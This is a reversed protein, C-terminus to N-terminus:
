IHSSTLSLVYLLCGVLINPGSAIKVSNSWSSIEGADDCAATQQAQQQQQRQQGPQQRSQPGGREWIVAIGSERHPFCCPGLCLLIEAAAGHAPATGDRPWGRSQWFWRHSKWWCRRGCWRGRWRRCWWGCLWRCTWCRRPWHVWEIASHICFVSPCSVLFLPAASDMVASAWGSRRRWLRDHWWHWHWDQWWHHWCCWRTRRVWVITSIAKCIPLSAPAHRLLLPAAPNM